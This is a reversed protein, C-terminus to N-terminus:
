TLQNNKHPETLNKSIKTYTNINIYDIEKLKIPRGFM